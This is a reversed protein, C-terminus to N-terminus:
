ICWLRATPPSRKVLGVCAFAPQGSALNTWWRAFPPSVWVSAAWFANSGELILCLRLGGVNRVHRPDDAGGAIIKDGRLPFRVGEPANMGSLPSQQPTHVIGQLPRPHQRTTPVVPLLAALGSVVRGLSYHMVAGDGGATNDRLQGTCSLNVVHDRGAANRGEFLVLRRYPKAVWVYPMPLWHDGRPYRTLPQLGWLPAM